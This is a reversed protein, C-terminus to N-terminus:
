FVLEHQAIRYADIKRYLTSRSIGLRQAAAHKNGREAELAREIAQRELQQIATLACRTAPSRYEIPLDDLTIDGRPRRALVTCIVGELERVNGPWSHRAFVQLVEPRLRVATPDPAHRHLLERSLAVLDDLRERLPPVMIRVPFRDVLNRATSSPWDPAATVMVRAPAGESLAAFAAACRTSLLGVDRVLLLAAEALGKRVEDLWATESLASIAADLVELRGSRAEGAAHLARAVSARGTGEEGLIAVGLRTAVAAEAQSCVASWAGSSGVLGPLAAGQPGADIRAREPALRVLAGVARDHLMIPTIDADYTGGNVLAIEEASSPGPMARAIREWLRVHDAPDLLRAAAANAIIFEGNVSIVPDASRRSARLFQELLAREALSASDYLRRRIEEAALCAFALMLSDAEEECRCTVDLIGEIRGTIPHLIPVAACTFPRLAEAFHEGGSVVFPRRTEIATGLGNTGIVDETYKAGPVATVADLKKQLQHMGVRRDLIVANGDTLILSTSTDAIQDALRDLVPGAARLLRSDGDFESLRIDPLRDPPVGNLMSRRWSWGIEPRVSGDLGSGELFRERARLRQVIRTQGSL